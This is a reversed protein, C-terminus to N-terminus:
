AQPHHSVPIRRRRAQPTKPIVVTLVGHQLDARVADTDVDNPLTLALGLRGTAHTRHRLLGARERELRQATLVLRSDDVQLDVDRRSIGPLEVKLVYSDDTEKLETPPAAADLLGRVPELVDPWREVQHALPSRQREVEVEADAGDGRRPLPLPLKM